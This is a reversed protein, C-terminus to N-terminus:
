ADNSVISVAHSSPSQIASHRIPSVINDEVDASPSQTVSIRSLSAIGGVDASQSQIMSTRTPSVISAVSIVSPNLTNVGDFDRRPVIPFQVLQRKAMQEMSTLKMDSDTFIPRMKEGLAVIPLSNTGWFEMRSKHNYHLVIALFVAGGVILIVPLIM